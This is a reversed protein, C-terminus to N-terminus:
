ELGIPIMPNHKLAFFGQRTRQVQMKGEGPVDVFVGQANNMLSSLRLHGFLLRIHDGDRVLVIDHVDVEEIPTM